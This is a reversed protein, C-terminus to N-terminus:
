RSAPPTGRSDSVRKAPYVYQGIPEGIPAGKEAVVVGRVFTKVARGTVHQGEYISFDSASRLSEAGLVWELQPDVLIFDADSGVSLTGKRPYIGFIQATKQATIEVLKEWSIRGKNIGHTILLPLISGVGGFGPMCDWLSGVKHRQQYTAHDSGISDVLGSQIAMWLAEVDNSERLPPNVKGYNGVPSNKTLTLYHPCTEVFISAGQQKSSEVAKLAKSSSIHPFYLPVGTELALLGAIAVDIAEAVAPRSETWASLDERGEAVMKAKLMDIIEAAEAHVMALGPPSVQAIAQFGRFAFGWDVGQVGVQRGEDGKYAMLFKFSTVGSDVLASIEKIHTQNMIFATLKFDVLSNERGLEKAREICPLISGRGAGSFLATSIITTVGGVAASISESRMDSAFKEESKGREAGLGLHLHPDILGPLVLFGAADLERAAPSLTSEQGMASILGDKVSLGGKIIGDPTIVKSNKVKLDDMM